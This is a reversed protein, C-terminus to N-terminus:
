RGRRLVAYMTPCWSFYRDLELGSDLLRLYREPWRRRADLRLLMEGITIFCFHLLSTPLGGLPIAVTDSGFRKGIAALPYQRWGHWLYTALGWGSPVFHLEMGGEALWEPLRRILTDDDPVHELASVSVILDFRQTGPDFTHIDASVFRRDFGAVPAYDFRDAIDVGLYSGGYGLEALRRCLSGSGCGIELIRLQRVPLKQPLRQALFAETLVRGPSATSPTGVLRPSHFEEITPPSGSAMLNTLFNRLLYAIRRGASLRGDGCIEIM